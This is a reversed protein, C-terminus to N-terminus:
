SGSRPQGWSIGTGSGRHLRRRHQRLARVSLCREALDYTTHPVSAVPQAQDTNPAVPLTQTTSPYSLRAVSDGPAGGGPSTISTPKHATYGFSTTRNLTDNVSALDGSGNVAYTVTRVTGDSATQKLPATAGNLLDRAGGAAYTEAFFKATVKRM